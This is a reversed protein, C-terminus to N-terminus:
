QGSILKSVKDQSVIYPHWDDEKVPNSVHTLLQEPM